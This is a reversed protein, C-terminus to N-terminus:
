RRLIYPSIWSYSGHFVWSSSFSSYSSARPARSTSNPDGSRSLGSGSLEFCSLESCSLESCSLESCCSEPCGFKSSPPGSCSLGFCPLKKEIEITRFIHHLIRTCKRMNKRIRLCIGTIHIAVPAMETTNIAKLIARSRRLSRLSRRRRAPSRTTSSPHSQIKCLM